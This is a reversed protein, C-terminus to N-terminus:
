RLEVFADRLRGILDDTEECGISLRVLYPDLGCSTAWEMEDYHALLTYLCALSFETGLSPGKSLRLQDYFTKAQEQTHFSISM